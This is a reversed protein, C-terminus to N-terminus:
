LYKKLEEINNELKKQYNLALIVLDKNENNYANIKEKLETIGKNTGDMMMKAVVNTKNEKLNVMESMMKTGIKAMINNHLEEENYQDLYESAKIMIREYEKRQNDLVKLFNTDEIKDYVDDIGIIGMESNKYIYQLFEVDNIKNM